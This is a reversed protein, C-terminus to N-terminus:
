AGSTEEAEDDDVPDDEATEIWEQLARVLEIAMPKSLHAAGHNADELDRDTKKDIFVWVRDATAASSQRVTVTAGYTDVFEAYNAFGRQTHSIPSM